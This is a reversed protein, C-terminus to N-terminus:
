VIRRVSETFIRYNVLGSSFFLGGSKTGEGTSSRFVRGCKALFLVHQCDTKGLRGGFCRDCGSRVAESCAHMKPLHRKRADIELM